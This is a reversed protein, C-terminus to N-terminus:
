VVPKKIHKSHTAPASHAPKPTSFKRRNKNDSISVNYREELIDLFEYYKGFSCGKYHVELLHALKDRNRGVFKPYYAPVDDKFMIIFPEYEPAWTIRYIDVTKRWLAYNTAAQAKRKKTWKFSYQCPELEHKSWLSLLQKKDLPTEVNPTKEFCAVVLAQGRKFKEEYLYKAVITDIGPMPVLDIDSLFVHSTMAADLALNRLFNMPYFEGHTFTIHIQINRRNYTNEDTCFDQVFSELKEVPLYIGASIPGDWNKAVMSLRNFRDPTFQTVLTTRPNGQIAKTDAGFINKWAFRKRDADINYRDCIPKMSINQEAKILTTARHIDEWDLSRNTRLFCEMAQTPHPHHGQLHTYSMKNQNLTRNEVDSLSMESVSHSPSFSLKVMLFCWVVVAFIALSAKKNRM